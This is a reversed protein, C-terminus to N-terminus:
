YTVTIQYHQRKGKHAVDLPKIYGKAALETLARTVILRTAHATRTGDDWPMALYEWGAWYEAAPKDDQPKDLTAWAMRTLVVIANATLPPGHTANVARAIRYGM